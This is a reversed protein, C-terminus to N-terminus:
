VEGNCTLVKGNAEHYPMGRRRDITLHLAVHSGLEM